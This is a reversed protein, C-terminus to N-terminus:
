LLGMAPWRTTPLRVQNMEEERVGAGIIFLGPRRLPASTALWPASRQGGPLLEIDGGALLPGVQCSLARSLRGVRHTSRGLYEYM